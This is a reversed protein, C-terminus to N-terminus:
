SYKHNNLSQLGASSRQVEMTCVLLVHAKNMCYQLDLSHFQVKKVYYEM